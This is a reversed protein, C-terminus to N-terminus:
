LTVQETHGFGKSYDILSIIKPDIRYLALEFTDDPVYNEAEPFKKMILAGVKEVEKPDSVRSALAGMSLSRIMQWSEYEPDITISVKNSTEINKAKQSDAATGFFITMGDNVFSVTTAQPFGDERVTAITMDDTDEIASKIFEEQEKDM